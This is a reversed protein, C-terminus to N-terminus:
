RAGHRVVAHRIEVSNFCLWDIRSWGQAWRAMFVGLLYLVFLPVMVVLMNYPDPTPTLLAAVVAAVLFAWRINRRVTAYDVIGLRAVFFVVLPTQFGFGLALLLTTVFSVYDTLRYQDEVWSGGFSQLWNLAAPIAVYAGFFLGLVFLAVGLPLFVLLQRKERKTLAPLLFALFQYLIVPMALTIGIVFIVKLAVVFAETPALVQPVQNLPAVLLHLLPEYFPAAVVMGAALAILIRIFRRHLDRLHDAM